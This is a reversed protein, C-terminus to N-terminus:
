IGLRHIEFQGDWTNAFMIYMKRQGILFLQRMMKNFESQLDNVGLPTSFALCEKAEHTVFIQYESKAFNIKCM